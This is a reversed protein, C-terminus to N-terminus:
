QYVQYGNEDEELHEREASVLLQALDTKHVIFTLFLSTLMFCGCVIFLYEFGIESLAHTSILGAILGAVSQFTNMYERIRYGTEFRSIQTLFM